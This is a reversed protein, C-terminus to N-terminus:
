SIIQSVPKKRKLKSIACRVASAIINPGTMEKYIRPLEPRDDEFLNKIYETWRELIESKPM